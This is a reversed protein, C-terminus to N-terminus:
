YTHNIKLVKKMSIAKVTTIKLLYTGQVFSSFDVQQQHGQLSKLLRGDLSFIEAKQVPEESEITMVDTVPNPYIRIDDIAVPTENKVDTAYVAFFSPNVSFFFNDVAEVMIRCHLYNESLVPLIVTDIGDNPVHMALPYTFHQASDISLLINVYQCNVPSQNTHAVQWEVVVPTNIKFNGSEPTIVAFPGASDTAAFTIKKAIVAGGHAHNDRVTLMFNMNRASQPLIEAYDVDGSIVTEMKPFIRTGTTKPLYSRFLPSTGTSSYEGLSIAPGLDYEEWCYTLNNPTEADTASATLRFPTMIPVSKGSDPFQLLVPATNQIVTKEACDDVQMTRQMEILSRVHFYPDSHDQLNDEGCIGAYAMITSGSGPEYASFSVRNGGSCAGYKNSNFTHSAGMQHGIEHAVFDIVYPDNVPSQDGTVGEAKMTPKCVCAVSALGGAGTSVVHGIDFNETGISDTLVSQSQDILVFADDNDFPDTAADTYIVSLSRTVLKFRVRVNNEYVENLRNVLTTIAAFAAEKTGGHFQTYEGTAGMALRYTRLPTAESFVLNGITDGEAAYVPEETVKCGLMEHRNLLDSKYYSIYYQQTTAHYPDIFWSGGTDGTVMAHLGQVTYDMRVTVAPNEVAVGLFTRNEPFLNALEDDTMRYTNVHFIVSQGQPNPLSILFDNTELSRAGKVAPAQKMYDKFGGFDVEVFCYREPVIQRFTQQKSRKVHREESKKWFTEPTASTAGLTISLFFFVAFFDCKFKM